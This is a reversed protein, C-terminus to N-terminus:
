SGLLGHDDYAENAMSMQVGIISTKEDVRYMENVMRYCAAGLALVLWMMRTQHTSLSMSFFLYMLASVRMASVLSTVRNNSLAAALRSAESLHRWVVVWLWIMTLLGILGLQVAMEVFLNHMVVPQTLNGKWPFHGLGAGILPNQRFVSLAYGFRSFRQFGRVTFRYSIREWPLLPAVSLFVLIFAFLTTVRGKRVMALQVVLLFVISVLATRSVTLGVALLLFAATGGGLLARQWGGERMFWFLIPLVVLYTSATYNPDGDGGRPRYWLYSPASPRILDYNIIAASIICGLVLVLFVLELRKPSDIVDLIIFVMVVLQVYTAFDQRWTTFESWSISVAALFLFVLMPLALPLALLERIPEKKMLKSAGWAVGTVLGVV